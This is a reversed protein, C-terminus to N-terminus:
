YHHGIRFTLRKEYKACPKKFIRMEWYIIMTPSFCSFSVCGGTLSAVCLRPFDAIKLKSFIAM